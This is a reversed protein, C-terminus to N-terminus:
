LSPSSYIAVRFFRHVLGEISVSTAPQTLAKVRVPIVAPVTERLLVIVDRDPAPAHYPKTLTVPLPVVLVVDSRSIASGPVIATVAPSVYATDSYILCATVPVYVLIAITHFFEVPPTILVDTPFPTLLGTVEHPRFESIATAGV